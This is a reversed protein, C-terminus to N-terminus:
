LYCKGGLHMIRVKGTFELTGCSLWEVHTGHNLLSDGTDSVACRSTLCLHVLLLIAHNSLLSGIRYDPTM